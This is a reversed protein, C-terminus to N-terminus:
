QTRASTPIPRSPHRVSVFQTAEVVGVGIPTPISIRFPVLFRTGALPALWVEMTRLKTLYKIAVRSPVYGAVPAFYVACVVVPGRYGKDAKVKDMRKYALSLNYRLRGDFISVTRRCAKATLPNGNGPVRLLSASMPDVVDRRHAATVPVRAPHPSSPPIAVFDRVNGNALRMRVINAKKNSVISAAYSAPVLLGGVMYGRSASTGHGTALVRMLGSTKGSAAATYHDGNIDIVWAGQGIPLGALSATFRADLRGQARASSPASLAALVIGCAAAAPLYRDFWNRPM